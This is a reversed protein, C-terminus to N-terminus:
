ERRTRAWKEIERLGEREKSTGGFDLVVLSILHQEIGWKATKLTPPASRDLKRFCVIAVETENEAEM